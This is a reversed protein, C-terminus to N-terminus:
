RVASFIMRAIVVYANNMAGTRFFRTPLAPDGLFPRMVWGMQIGVFAFITLWAFQMWRHAARRAILSRYSRRLDLQGGISAVAFMFANFLIANSYGFGSAYWLM